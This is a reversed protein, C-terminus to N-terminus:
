LETKLEKIQEETLDTFEIIEDLPKGKILMKKAIEINRKEIATTEAKKITNAEIMLWKLRDEYAQREEESFNM